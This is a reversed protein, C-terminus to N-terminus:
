ADSTAEEIADLEDNERKKEEVDEICSSIVELALDLVSLRQRVDEKKLSDHLGGESTAHEISGIITSIQREALSLGWIAGDMYVDALAKMTKETEEETLKPITTTDSM